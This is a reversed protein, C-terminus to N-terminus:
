HPSDVLHLLSGKIEEYHRCRGGEQQSKLNVFNNKFSLFNYSFTVICLEPKSLVVNVFNEKLNRNEWLYGLSVMPTPTSNQNQHFYEKLNQYFAM